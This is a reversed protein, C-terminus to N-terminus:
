DILYGVQIGADRLIRLGMTDKWERLYYVETFGSNTILAACTVCPSTTCIMIKCPDAVTCKAIANAEAHICTYKGPTNCLCDLGGKPGGNVGISYVQTGDKNIIIAAQKKDVCKSLDALERVFNKFVLMRNYLIM